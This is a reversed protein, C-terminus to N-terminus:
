APSVIGSIADAVAVNRNRWNKMVSGSSNISAARMSPAPGSRKKQSTTSGSDFVLMAASNTIVNM